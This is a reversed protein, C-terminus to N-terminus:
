KACANPVQADVAIKRAFNESSPMSQLDACVGVFCKKEMFKVILRSTSLISILVCLRLAFWQKCSAHFWKKCAAVAM